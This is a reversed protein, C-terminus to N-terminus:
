PVSLYVREWSGRLFMDWQQLPRGTCLVLEPCRVPSPAVVCVSTSSCPSQASDAPAAAAAEVGGTRVPLVVLCLPLLSTCAATQAGFPEVGWLM